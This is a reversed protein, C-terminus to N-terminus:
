VGNKLGEITYLLKDRLSEIKGFERSTYTKM